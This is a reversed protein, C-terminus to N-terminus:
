RMLGQRLHVDSSEFILILLPLPYERLILRRSFRRVFRDTVRIFIVMKGELGTEDDDRM